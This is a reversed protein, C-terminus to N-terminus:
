TSKACLKIARLAMRFYTQDPVVRLIGDTVRCGSVFVLHEFCDNLMNRSIWYEGM